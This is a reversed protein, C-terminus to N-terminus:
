AWPCGSTSTSVETPANQDGGYTVAAPSLGRRRLESECLLGVLARLQKDDLRAVDDETVELM